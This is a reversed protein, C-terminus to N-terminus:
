DQRARGQTAVAQWDIQRAIHDTFRRCGATTFHCPDNYYRKGAPMLKQQDVFLIDPRSAALRRIVANHAALAAPVTGARGWLRLPSVHQAYDLKRERFREESYDPPIHSAFTMLLLPDGREDATEVIRRLNAEFSAPTKLDAGHHHWKPGPETSLKLQQSWRSKLFRATYPLVLYRHEPHQELLAIQEFRPAHTYDARFVKRPCNNLYTDNIGHYVVVLDFRKASLREYKLASDRTTRGPYALNFVRVPRHLKAELVAQLRTAIDGFAEHLVSAGLFLVDFTDDDRSEPAESVGSSVVEPFYSLWIQESHLPPVNRAIRWYARCLLELGIVGVLFFTLLVALRAQWSLNRWGPRSLPVDPHSPAAM